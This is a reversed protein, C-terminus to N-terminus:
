GAIAAAGSGHLIVLDIATMEGFWSFVFIVLNISFFRMSTLLGVHRTTLAAASNWPLCPCKKAGPIEAWDTPAWLILKCIAIIGAPPRDLTCLCSCWSVAM